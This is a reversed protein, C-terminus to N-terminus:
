RMRERQTALVTELRLGTLETPTSADSHFLYPVLEASVLGDFLFDIATQRATTSATIAGRPDVDGEGFYLPPLFMRGKNKRGGVATRKSWLESCNSPLPSGAKTGDQPDTMDEGVDFGEIHRRYAVCGLFTYGGLIQSALFPGSAHTAPTVAFTAIQTATFTPNPIVGLTTVMNEADGDLAFVFNIQAAGIPIVVGM